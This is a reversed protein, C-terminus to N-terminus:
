VDEMPLPIVYPKIQCINFWQEYIENLKYTHIGGLEYTKGQSEDIKLSNTIALAVDNVFTPQVVANHGEIQYFTRNFMKMMTSWKGNIQAVGHLLNLMMSPKIITAEPCIRRVEQEGVWKTRLRASPSNPDAGAASVYIFRKVGPNDAVCKAITRPIEINAEVFDEEKDYYHKSGICSIVVNSDKIALGVERPCTFDTLKLSTKYGMDAAVKLERFKSDYVDGTARHPYVCVSGKDTLRTGVLAGLPSSGGFLTAKVGSISNRTGKDNFYLKQPQYARAQAKNLARSATGTRSLM